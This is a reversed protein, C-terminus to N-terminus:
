KIIFSGINASASPMPVTCFVGNRKRRTVIRVYYRTNKKLKAGRYQTIVAGTADAKTATSQNWYWTGNPNTTLFVNYGNCGYIINWSINMKLSTGKSTNRTTLKAPSPTIYEINSWPGFIRQGNLMYFARVKMQSVHQPHVTCNRYLVNAKVITASAHSGDTWSLLTQYGDAGDVKKWAIQCGTYKSNNWKAFHCNGPKKLVKKVTIKVSTSGAQYNKTESFSVTITVTGVGKGTVTGNSSVTAIANNSSKYTYAPTEKAGTVTVKTTKGVELTAAAKATIQQKAKNIKPISRQSGEKIEDCIACHISESGEETETPQKDVTYKDEWQHAAPISDAIKDGCVTCTKEKSGAETCTAEKTTTWDGYHHSTKPIARESGEKVADCVSCHISETGEEKCTAEKDVTYETKWNHGTAAIAETVKDGCDACVKEKSGAETCTAEKTTTWDGYRHSTKPIARESGEKVADCVSCHISETGEEKCTAEKDVTYDTEWKHGTAAIAETVKDGCDACVKEKSGAETCTPEKATTWDGYHHSTKPIARESGEKVADCVSCHISETGEEKCADCVSCHISETGEEKCTAEKDVTYETKWKHGTAAITETVKDGCAACVKERSGAETCTAEKATTWDGYSHGTAAIAETVKDGCVTCVKERSGAETCTPEKAITWDGYSHATKPIARESGEKIEGCVSCHISEVGEESCTAEKDVTYDTEWEHVTHAGYNYGCLELDADSFLGETGTDYSYTIEVESFYYGEKGSGDINTEETGVLFLEDPYGITGEDCNTVDVLYNKGDEMNVINWMHNGAGTGGTMLGTVLICSIDNSFSSQDCLYKFAKAYGECVVETDPDGDFVWVLQWPNGYSVGGDAAADNYSVLDCIEEMYGRLKDEDSSGSYKSVIAKANAVSAQVSQGISTDVEYLGAAFEQAVTFRMPIAGSVYIVYDDIDQDYNVGVDFGYPINCGETKDYWYLEYPHDALMVNIIKAYNIGVKESVADYADDSIIGYGDDDLVFDGQEDVVLLTSVGLEGATWATQELGLIETTIDFATSARQGAAILPLQGAIYEYVTRDNGSLISSSSKKAKRRGSSLQGKFSQEVYESFLEEPSKGETDGVVNGEGPLTTPATGRFVPKQSQGDTETETGNDAAQDADGNLEESSKEGSEDNEKSSPEESEELSEEAGDGAPEESGPEVAEEEAEEQKEGTEEPVTEESQEDTEETLEEVPENSESDADDVPDEVAEESGAETQVTVTERDAPESAMLPVTGISGLTMVVSLVLAIVNKKM